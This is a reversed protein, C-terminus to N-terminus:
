GWARYEFVGFALAESACAVAGDGGGACGKRKGVIDILLSHGLVRGAQGRIAARAVNEGLGSRWSGRPVMLSRNLYHGGCPSDLAPHVFIRRVGFRGKLM